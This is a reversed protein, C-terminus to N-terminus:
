APINSLEAILRARYQAPTEVATTVAEAEQQWGSNVRLAMFRNGIVEGDLQFKPAEGAAAAPKLNFGASKHQLVEGDKTIYEDGEKHAILECEVMQGIMALRGIFEDLGLQNAYHRVLKNSMFLPVVTGRNDLSFVTSGDARGSGLAATLIKFKSM